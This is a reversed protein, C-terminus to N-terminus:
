LHNSTVRCKELLLRYVKEFYSYYKLKWLRKQWACNRQLLIHNVTISWNIILAPNKMQIGEIIKRDEM